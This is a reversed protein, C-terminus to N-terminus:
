LISQSRGIFNSHACLMKWVSISGSTGASMLKWAAEIFYLELHEGIKVADESGKLTRSKCRSYHKDARLTLKGNDASGAQKSSQMCLAAESPFSPVSIPM